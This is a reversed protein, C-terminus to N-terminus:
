PSLMTQFKKLTSYESSPITGRVQSFITPFQGFFPAEDKGGAEEEEEEEEEKEEEEEEAEEEKAEEGREEKGGEEGVAEGERNKLGLAVRTFWGSNEYKKKSEGEEAGRRKKTYGLQDRLFKREKKTIGFKESKAEKLLAKEQTIQCWKIINTPAEESEEDNSRLSLLQENAVGEDTM